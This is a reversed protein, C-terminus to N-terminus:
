NCWIKAGKPIPASFPKKGTMVDNIYGALVPEFTGYHVATARLATNTPVGLVNKCLDALSFMGATVYEGHFGPPPPPKVGTSWADASLTALTGNHQSTDCKGCGPWNTINAGSKGDTSQWLTHGIVPPSNQYAAVWTHRQSAFIAALNHSAVFSTYSYLWSRKNLPQSDLGYFQDVHSLWTNARGSQDGNGEELDLMFVTGPAVATKPGVWKCFQAAQAAPDQGAVLYHYLGIFQYKSDKMATYNAVFMHDLHTAGYGVRIIGAGGNKTKIGAWDPASGGTQFESVDPLLITM